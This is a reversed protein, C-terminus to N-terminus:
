VITTGDPLTVEAMADEIAEAAAVSDVSTAEKVEAREVAPLAPTEEAIAEAVEYTGIEKGHEVLYPRENSKGRGQIYRPRMM